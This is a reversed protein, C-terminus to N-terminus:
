GASGSRMRKTVLIGVSNTPLKFHMSNLSVVFGFGTRLEINLIRGYREFVERLDAETTSQALNGLYIKYIPETKPAVLAGNTPSSAPPSAANRPERGNSYSADDGNSVEM